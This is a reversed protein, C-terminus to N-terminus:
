PDFELFDEKEMCADHIISLLTGSKVEKKDPVSFNRGFRNSLIIHSGKGRRKFSINFKASARQFTKLVDDASKVPLRQAM